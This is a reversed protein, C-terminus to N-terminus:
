PLILQPHGSQTVGTLTPIQLAERGKFRSVTELSIIKQTKSSTFTPYYFTYNFILFINAFGKFHVYIYRCVIVCCPTINKSFYTQWRVKQSKRFNLVNFNSTNNLFSNEKFIQSNYLTDWFVM